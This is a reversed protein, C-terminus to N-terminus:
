QKRGSIHRSKSTKMQKEMKDIARDIAIYMDTETSKVVYNEQDAFVQLDCHQNKKDSELVVHIRHINFADQMRIKELSSEVRKKLADTIDLKQGTIDIKM